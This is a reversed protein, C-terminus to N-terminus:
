GLMQSSLSWPIYNKGWSYLPNGCSLLFVHCQEEIDTTLLFHLNDTLRCGEAQASM